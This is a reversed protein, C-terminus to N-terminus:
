DVPPTGPPYWSVEVRLGDPDPLFLATTGGPFRQLRAVHGAAEMVTALEEVMAVSPATFGFHNLGPGYREYGPTDDKAPGFQIHLGDENAWIHPKKQMFGLRPLLLGYFAASAKPDRSLITLHDLKFSM